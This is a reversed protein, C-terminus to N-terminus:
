EKIKQHDPLSNYLKEIQNKKFEYVDNMETGKMDLYSSGAWIHKFGNEMLTYEQQQNERNPLWQIETPIEFIKYGMAKQWWALWQGPEAGIRKIIKWKNDLLVNGVESEMTRQGYSHISENNKGMGNHFPGVVPSYHAAKKEALQPYYPKYGDALEIFDEPEALVENVISKHVM